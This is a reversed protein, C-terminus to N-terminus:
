STVSNPFDFTNKGGRSIDFFSLKADRAVGDALGTTEDFGNSARRGIITGAVHTGHGSSDEKDDM